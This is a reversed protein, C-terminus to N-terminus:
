ITKIKIHPNEKKLVLFRFFTLNWFLFFTDFRPNKVDPQQAPYKFLNSSQLQTMLGPVRRTPSFSTKGQCSSPSFNLFPKTYSVDFLITKSNKQLFWTWLKEYEIGWSTEHELPLHLVDNEDLSLTNRPKFIGSRHMGVMLAWAFGSIPETLFSSIGSGYEHFTRSLVGTATSREFRM